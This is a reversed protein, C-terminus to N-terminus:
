FYLALGLRTIRPLAFNGPDVVRVNYLDVLSQANTAADRQAQALSSTIYGDDYASGTYRYVNLVNINNFLNQVWLYVRLRYVTTKGDLRQNTFNFNKDVNLDAFFQSPLRAGNITGKVQSRAVVGPQVEPTPIIQQTYPRGSTFNFIMNIGANEFIKKGGVIPGNYEKGSRYHFDFIGKLTHRTDFNM